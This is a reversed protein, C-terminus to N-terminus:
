EPLLPYIWATHWEYTRTKYQRPFLPLPPIFHGTPSLCTIVTVVSGREASQLSSIQRKSEIRINESTQATCYRDTEDSNYLRAAHHQITDM